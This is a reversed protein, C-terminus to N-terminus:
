VWESWRVTEHESLHRGADEAFDNFTKKTLMAVTVMLLGPQCALLRFVRM